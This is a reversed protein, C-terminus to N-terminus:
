IKLYSQKILNFIGKCKDKAYNYQYGQLCECKGNKLFSNKKCKLCKDGGFCNKCLDINNKCRDDENYVKSCKNKESNYTYGNKCSCKSSQLISHKKCKYCKEKECVKCL